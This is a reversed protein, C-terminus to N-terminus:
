HEYAAIKLCNKDAFGRKGYFFVYYTNCTIIIKGGKTKKVFVERFVTVSMETKISKTYMYIVNSNFKYRLGM